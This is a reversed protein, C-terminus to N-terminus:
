RRQGWDSDDVFDWDEDEPDVERSPPPVTEEPDPRFPPTIVRFEADYVSNNSNSSRPPPPEDEPPKDPPGYSYSYVSGSQSRRIPEQETEFSTRPPPNSDRYPTPEADVPPQRRPAEEDGQWDSWATDERDRLPPQPTQPPPAARPAPEEWNDWAAADRSADWDDGSATSRRPTSRGTETAATSWGGARFHSFREGIPRNEPRPAAAVRKVPRSLEILAAMIITTLAGAGIAGLVWFALPVALTPTGLIVLPVPAMNQVAFLVLSGLIALLLLLRIM